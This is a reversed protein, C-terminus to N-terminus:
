ENSDTENQEEVKNEYAVKKNYYAVKFKEMIDKTNNLGRVYDQLLPELQDEWLDKFTLEELKKFYAAGIHYNENLEPVDSIEKNLNKMRTIIEEKNELNNLMDTNENAKIEIFRFRRRMAFDFSDVSRDIDNMTGIIYVNDPIYFNKRDEENEYLEQYQTSVAGKPGVYVPDIGRYEPDISFFLEGFIKSIEGRNIEDIIFVYNKKKTKVDKNQVINAKNKRNKMEKYLALYYSYHQDESKKEVIEKLDMAKTFEKDSILMKKLVDIKLKIENYRANNPIFIYIDKDDTNTICFENGSAIKFRKNEIEANELYDDIISQATNEKKITEETKDSDELNKIAREVFKKFKGKKVEFEMNGDTNLKPRIGEVFDSYDYNPHFQVFEIQEKETSDLGEYKKKGNSIIDAAIEQALYTKGTGPAGRLIINKSKKLKNSYENQYDITTNEENTIETEGKTDSITEGDVTEEEDGANTETYTLIFKDEDEGFRNLCEQVFHITSFVNYCSFMFIKNDYEYKMFGVKNDEKRTFIGRYVKGKSTYKCIPFNMKEEDSLKDLQKEFIRCALKPMTRNNVEENNDEISCIKKGNKEFCVKKPVYNDGLNLNDMTFREDTSEPVKGKTITLIYEEKKNEM